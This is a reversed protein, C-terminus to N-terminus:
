ERRPKLKDSLPSRQSECLKIICRKEKTDIPTRGKQRAKNGGAAITTTKILMTKM